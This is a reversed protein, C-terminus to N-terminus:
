CDEDKILIIGTCVNNQIPDKIGLIFTSINHLSEIQLGSHRLYFIIYIKLIAESDFM